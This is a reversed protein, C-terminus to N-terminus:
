HKQSDGRIDFGNARPLLFLFADSKQYSSKRCARNKSRNKVMGTPYRMMFAGGSVLGERYQVRQLFGQNGDIKKSKEISEILKLWVELTSGESIHFSNYSPITQM